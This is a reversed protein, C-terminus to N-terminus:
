HYIKLPSVLETFKIPVQTTTYINSIDQFNKMSLNFQFYESDTEDNHYM